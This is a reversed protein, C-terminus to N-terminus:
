DDEEGASLYRADKDTGAEGQRPSIPASLNDHDDDGTTAATTASADDNAAKPKAETAGLERDDARRSAPDIAFQAEEANYIEYGVCRRKLWDCFNLLAYFM